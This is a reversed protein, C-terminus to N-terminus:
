AFQSLIMYIYMYEVCSDYCLAEYVYVNGTVFTARRDGPQM